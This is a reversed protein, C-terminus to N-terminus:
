KGGDAPYVRDRPCSLGEGPVPVFKARKQDIKWATKVPLFDGTAAGDLVALIIDPLDKGNIKCIGSFAPSTKSHAPLALADRVVNHRDILEVYEAGCIIWNVSSLGDSIEDDGLDKLGLASYKKETEVVPVNSSRKGILSKAIDAGCQLNQFEDAFAGPGCVLYTAAAMCAWKKV